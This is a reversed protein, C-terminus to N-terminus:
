DGFIVKDYQSIGWVIAYLCWLFHPTYETITHEWFDQFLGDPGDFRYVSDMAEWENESGLISTKISDWTDRMEQGFEKIKERDSLNINERAYIIHYRFEDIVAKEFVEQSFERIGNGFISQSLCKEAWYQPNIRLEKQRFFNFMDDVRSFVYTGMDGTICLHGVWTILDFHCDSTRPRKFRVHRNPGTDALIIMGHYDIDNLFRAKLEEFNM